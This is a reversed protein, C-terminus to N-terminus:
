IQSVIVLLFIFGIIVSMGFYVDGTNFEENSKTYTNRRGRYYADVAKYVERRAQRRCYGRMSRM